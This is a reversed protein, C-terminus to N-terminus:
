DRTAYFGPCYYRSKERAQVFGCHAFCDKTHPHKLPFGVIKELDIYFLNSIRTEQFDMEHPKPDSALVATCMRRRLIECSPHM